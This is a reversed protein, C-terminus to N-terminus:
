SLVAQTEQVKGDLLRVVRDATRADHESHTVMIITTGDTNLEKLLALGQEPDQTSGVLEVQDSFLKLEWELAKISGAEDDIALARLRKM